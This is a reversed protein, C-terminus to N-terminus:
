NIKLNKLLLRSYLFESWFQLLCLLWSQETTYPEPVPQIIPLELGLLSQSNKEEGGRGSWSQRGGLRRDLPYRPSKGLPYLPRPTFRVVCKWITGLDIIRPAIGGSGLIGEHRLAWNFVPVVKGKGKVKRCCANVFNLRNKELSLM